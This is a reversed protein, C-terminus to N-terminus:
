RPGESELSEVRLVAPQARLRALTQPALGAVHLLYADTVTPGGVLRADSARLAHRIQAETADARFVVLANAAAASTAAGLTRYPETQPTTHFLALVLVGALAVQVGVALPLWRTWRWRAAFPPRRAAVPRADLRSRLAAWDRGVAGAPDAPDADAPVARLEDQWAADAQCRPCQALHAQVRSSEAEELTGNIYWPLLSQTVQHDDSDLPLIRATM